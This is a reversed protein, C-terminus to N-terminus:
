RSFQGTRNFTDVKSRATADGQAAAKDYLRLAVTENREVGSGKEYMYALLVTATVDEHAVAKELWFKGLEFNQDVGLGLAYKM